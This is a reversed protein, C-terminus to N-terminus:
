STLTSRTSGPSRSMPIPYLINETRSSGVSAEVSGTYGAKEAVTVTLITGYEVKDGSAVVAGGNSVVVGEGSITVTYKNVTYECSFTVDVVVNYKGDAVAGATASVTGTYGKKSVPVVDLVTGYAVKDGSSVTAEGNKVSLTAPDFTVTYEHAVEKFSATYTADATAAFPEPSWTDFVYLHESTSEKTPEAGSYVPVTGHEVQDTGLVTGDDNKWIITYKNLMYTVTVTVDEAPMTGTITSPDPTYGTVSEPYFIYETGYAVLETHDPIVDPTGVHKVTLTFQKPTSEATFVTDSNIVFKGDAPTVTDSSWGTIDYGMKTYPSRVTVEEGYIYIDSFVATGDVKYTVKYATQKVLKKESGTFISGRINDADPSLETTGDTDYLTVMASGQGFLMSAVTELSGGFSIYKLGTCGEFVNNGIKTVANPVVLRELASCGYFVSNGIETVTDPIIVSSLSTCGSFVSNPLLAIGNEFSVSVLSTCNYFAYSGINELRDGFTVSILGTCGEFAKEEVTVAKSLDLSQLMPCDQFACFGIKIESNGIINTLSSCGKFAEKEVKTAGEGLNVTGLSTCGSFARESVTKAGNGLSVTSLATCGYFSRYDVMTVSDPLTVSTLATCDQFAGYGIELLGEPFTVQTLHGNSLFAYITIRSVTDPVSYSSSSKASPYKVLNKGDKSFLVGDSASYETNSEPVIFATLSSCSRFNYMMEIYRTNAGFTITELNPCGLIAELGLSQVSDPITYSTGPKAQPYKVLRTKDKNFLIGDETVFYENAESVTFSILASCDSFAYNGYSTLGSGMSVTALSTCGRFANYEIREVSDPITVSTLSTCDQFMCDPITKLGSPITVSSLASCGMFAYKGIDQVTDPIVVVVLSTCGSFASQGIVTVSEPITVTTLSTCNSFMSKVLTPSGGGLTVASLDICHEFTYGSVFETVSDPISISTIGSYRFAESGIKQVNSPIEISTLAKCWSFAADGIETVGSGIVVESLKSHDRFANKGIYTVGNGVTVKTINSGWPRSDEYDAMSGDGSITLETGNLTWTCDGTSGTGDASVTDTCAICSVAVTSALVVAVLLVIRKLNMMGVGLNEFKVQDCSDTGTIM